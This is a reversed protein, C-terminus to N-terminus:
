KGKFAHSRGFAATLFCVGDMGSLPKEAAAADCSPRSTESPKPFFFWVFFRLHKGRFKM